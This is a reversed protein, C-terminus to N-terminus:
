TITQTMLTMSSQRVVIVVQLLPILLASMTMTTVVEMVLDRLGMQARSQLFTGNYSKHGGIKIGTHFGIVLDPYPSVLFRGRYIAYTKSSGGDFYIGRADNTSASDKFYIKSDVFLGNITSDGAPNLYYATNERDYFNAANVNGFQHNSWNNSAGGELVM